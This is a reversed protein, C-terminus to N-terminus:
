KQGGFGEMIQGYFTEVHANFMKAEHCDLCLNEPFVELWPISKACKSCPVNPRTPIQTM